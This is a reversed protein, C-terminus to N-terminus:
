SNFKDEIKQKYNLYHITQLQKPSDIRFASLPMEIDSIHVPYAEQNRRFTLIYQYAVYFVQTGYNLSSFEQENCYVTYVIGKATAEGTIRLNLEKDSVPMKLHARTCCWMGASNKHLKYYDISLSSEFFNRNLLNDLFASYHSVLCDAQTNAHKRTYLAGREDIIYISVDNNHQYYFLQIVHAENFTYILPIPTNALITQDFYSPRFQTQPSALEKLLADDDALYDYILMADTNQFVYFAMGGALFYRYNPAEFLLRLLTKFVYEIRMVISKGRTPTQCMVSIDAVSMPKSHGNIIDCLVDFLGTLGKHQSTNIEGWSTVSVLDTTQVFCQRNMGYSFTDSRASMVVCGDDRIDMDPQGLNIILLAHLPTRATKYASLPPDSDFHATLYLNLQSLTVQLEESSIKQHNKGLHLKLQKHYLGNVILWCLLECINSSKKVPEVDDSQDMSVNGLYLSWSEHDEIFRSAALSLENPMIHIENRTTLIEIKGPKKELFANLKRGILKLDNNLPHDPLVHERAFGMIMRYCQTHAQLIAAHEASAKSVNWSKDIQANYTSMPWHFRQAINQMYRERYTRNLADMAADSFGMIKLYFCQRALDLRNKSHCQQLYNEVKQYILLYPDLDINAYTGQYVARKIIHCLWQTNPYESAYCELLLLKLLSKHPAHLAKYLHWLTASTFEEAPVAELGGFDIVEHEYVFRNDILHSVYHTYHQEQHPPVLWWVPIKGAIHIATRYFEELLLYHQTHGSSEASMPNDEGRRFKECDMLFFHVELDLTAAWREVASAKKQLEALKPKSLDAQHCLWIDMDSTKSFAISGVSGM